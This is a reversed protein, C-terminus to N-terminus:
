SARGRLVALARTLDMSRRRLAGTRKSVSVYSFAPYTEGTTPSTWPNDKQIDMTRVAVAHTMFEKAAAIAANLSEPTM